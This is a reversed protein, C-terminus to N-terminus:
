HFLATAHAYAAWCLLAFAVVCLLTEWRRKVRREEVILNIAIRSPISVVFLTVLGGLIAAMFAIEPLESSELGGAKRNCIAMIVGSIPVWALVSGVLWVRDFRKDRNEDM